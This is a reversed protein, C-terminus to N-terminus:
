NPHHEGSNRVAWASAEARNATGTKELIHRVHTAVTPEGLTLQEAIRRNSLGRVLLALVERERLSLGRLGGDSRRSARRPPGGEGPWAATVRETFCPAAKIREYVALAEGLHSQGAAADGLGIRMQGFVYHADAEDYAHRVRQTGFLAAQFRTEAAAADGGALAALAEALAVRAGLGLWDENSMRSRAEAAHRPIEGYKGEEAAVLALTAHGGVGDVPNPALFCDALAARAEEHRGAYRLLDAISYGAHALLQHATPDVLKDRIGQITAIAADWRGDCFLWSAVEFDSQDGGTGLFEEPWASVKAGTLRQANFASVRAVRAQWPDFRTIDNETLPHALAPARLWSLCCLAQWQLATSAVATAAPIELSSKIVKKFARLGESIHGLHVSYHAHYAWGWCRRLDGTSTMMERAIVDAEATRGMQHLVNPKAARLSARMGRDDTLSSAEDFLRLAESLNQLDRFASSQYTYGEVQRMKAARSLDGAALLEDGAEHAWVRLQGFPFSSMNFRPFVVDCIFKARRLRTGPLGELTELTAQFERSLDEWAYAQEDAQIAATAHVILREVHAASAARRYHLALAHSWATQEPPPHVAEIAQAAGLHMAQRRPGALRAILARQVLAHIFAFRGMRDGSEAVLSASEGLELSRLIVHDPLATMAKLADFEFERGLIAAAELVAIADAPLRGIRGDLVLQVDRPVEMEAFPDAQAVVWGDQGLMGGAEGLHRMVEEIFYPNGETVSLMGNVFRAPISAATQGTLRAILERTHGYDLGSLSLRTAARTESFEALTPALPHGPGIEADRYTIVVAIPAQKLRRVLHALMQASLEDSWHIDEFVLLLPSGAAAELLANTLSDHLRLRTGLAAAPSGAPRGTRGLEPVLKRIDALVTPGLGEFFAPERAAGLGRLIAAWPRYPLEAEDRFCHGELVTAGAARAAAAAERVLRTKGIGAEGVILMANGEGQFARALHGAILRQEADRGV